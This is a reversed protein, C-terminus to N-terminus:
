RARRANWNPQPAASIVWRAKAEEAAAPVVAAALMRARPHKPKEARSVNWGRPINKVTGARCFHQGDHSMEIDFHAAAPADYEWSLIVFDDYQRASLGTIGVPLVIYTPLWPTITLGYLSQPVTFTLGVTRSFFENSIFVRKESAAALGEIQGIGGGGAIDVIKGLDVKRKNGSTFLQNLGNYGTIVWLAGSPYGTVEYGILITTKNNIRAAGTILAGRTDLSDKRVAVQVGPSPEASIVYHVTYDSIWNKTFLHLRGNDYIVAECDFRTSNAPRSTFDAQDEYRFDIERIDAAAISGSSGTIKVIDEKPFRYLKLDTRNGNTNGFDGIYIYENDQTLDEWDVNTAGQLTITKTIAGTTTDIEYLAPQGDSDNHGYLKGNMYIMGSIESVAGPLTVKKLHKLAVSTAPYICSGDSVTALPNYNSSAPDTCGYVQANVSSSLSSMFLVTLLFSRM